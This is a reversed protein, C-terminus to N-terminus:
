GNFLGEAKEKLKYIREIVSKEGKKAQSESRQDHSFNSIPEISCKEGYLCNYCLTGKLDQVIHKRRMENIIKNNWAEKLSEENLNAYILKNDYDVCCLSLMGDQTLHIRNWLMPCPKAKDIKDFPATLKSSELLKLEELSQGMQGHVGLIKTDDVFPVVVRKYEEIEEETFKTVVFSAMLKLNVKYKNRYEYIEKLNKIVKDFDDKGHTLKYNERSAANISFKISTLGADVLKKVNSLSALAGNTTIYIYEVGGNSAIEIFSKLRKDLLPEGRMYFGVEKLGLTTGEKIFNRFLEIDLRSSKIKMRPNTCFICSHNCGATLEVMANKPFKVDKYALKNEQQVSRKELLNEEKNSIFYKHSFGSFVKKLSM